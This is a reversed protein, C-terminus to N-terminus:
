WSRRDSSCRRTGSRRHAWASKRRV